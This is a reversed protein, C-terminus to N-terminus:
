TSGEHPDRLLQEHAVRVLNQESERMTKVAGAPLAGRPRAARALALEQFASHIQSAAKVVPTAGGELLLLRATADHVADEYEKADPLLPVPTTPPDTEYTIVHPEKTQVFVRYKRYAALLEACAQVRADRQEREFLWAREDRASRENRDALSEAHRRGQSGALWTFFVGAVGTVGTAAATTWEWAV